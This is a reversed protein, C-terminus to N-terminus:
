LILPKFLTKLKEKADHPLDEASLDELYKKAPFRSAKDQAKKFNEERLDYEKSLIAELFELYSLNAKNAEAAEEEVYRRVGPLRLRRSYGDIRKLLDKRAKDKM